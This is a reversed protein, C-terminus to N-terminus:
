PAVITTTSIKTPPEQWNKWSETWNITAGNYDVDGAPGGRYAMRVRVLTKSGAPGTKLSVTRIASIGPNEAYCFGTWNRGGDTSYEVHFFGIQEGGGANTSAFISINLPSDAPALVPAAIMLVRNVARAPVVALLAAAFGGLLWRRIRGPSLLDLRACIM